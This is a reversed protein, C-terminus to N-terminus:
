SAAAPRRRAGRAPAAKAARGRLALGAATGVCAAFLCTSAVDYITGDVMSQALLATAGCFFPVILGQRRRAEVVVFKAVWAAPVAVFLTGVIGWAFLLQLVLNHANAVWQRQLVFATQGEGHGFWPREEIREVIARWFDARGSTSQDAVLRSGGLRDALEAAGAGGAGGAGGAPAGTPIPFLLALAIGAAAALGLLLLVRPKRMAPFLMLGIATAALLAPIPGRSGSWVVLFFGAACALIALALRTRWIAFGGVCLGLIATAYIGSRRLHGLGPMDFLWRFRAPDDVQFAFVAFGLAYACFGVLMATFLHRADFKARMALFAVALGFLGHVMWLGTMFLSFREFPAVLVATGWAVAAWGALCLLVLRPPRSRWLWAFLGELAALGIVLGEIAIIPMAYERIARSGFTTVGQPDWTLLLILTPGFGILAPILLRDIQVGPPEPPEDTAPAPDM